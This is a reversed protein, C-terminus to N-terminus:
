KGRKPKPAVPTLGTAKAVNPSFPPLEVRYVPVGFAELANMLDGPPEKKRSM